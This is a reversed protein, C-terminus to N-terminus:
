SAVGKQKHSVCRSICSQQNCWRVAVSASSHWTLKTAFFLDPAFHNAQSARTVGSLAGDVSNYLMYFVQATV